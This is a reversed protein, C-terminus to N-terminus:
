IHILSLKIRVLSYVILIGVTLGFCFYVSCAIIVKKHSVRIGQADLRNNIYNLNNLINRVSRKSVIFKVPYYILTVPVACDLLLSIVSVYNVSLDCLTVIIHIVPFVFRQVETTCVTSWKIRQIASLTMHPSVLRRVYYQRM